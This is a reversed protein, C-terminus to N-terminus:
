DNLVWGVKSICIQVQVAETEECNRFSCWLDCSGHWIHTYYSSYSEKKGFERTPKLLDGGGGGRKLYALTLLKNISLGLFYFSFILLKILKVHKKTLIELHGIYEIRFINM